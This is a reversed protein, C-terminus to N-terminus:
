GCAADSRPARRVGGEDASPLRRLQRGGCLGPRERGGLQVDDAASGADPQRTRGPVPRRRAHPARRPLRPRRRQRHRGLDGGAGHAARRRHRAGGDAAGDDARRRGQVGADPRPLARARLHGARGRRASDSLEAGRRRDGRLDSADLEARTYPRLARYAVETLTRNRLRALEGPAWPEITEPVYLGGDPPSARRRRRRALSVAPQHSSAARTTVFKMHPRDVSSARAGHRSRRSTPRRVRRRDARAVAATMADAVRVAM